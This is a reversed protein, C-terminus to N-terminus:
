FRMHRILESKLNNTANEMKTLVSVMGNFVHLTRQLEPDTLKPQQPTILQELPLPLPSQATTTGANVKISGLAERIGCQLFNQVGRQFDFGPNRLIQHVDDMSVIESFGSRSTGAASLYGVPTESFAATRIAAQQPVDPFDSVVEELYRQADGISPKERLLEAQQAAAEVSERASEVVNLRDPVRSLEGLNM